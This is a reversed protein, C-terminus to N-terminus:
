SPVRISIVGINYSLTYYVSYDLPSTTKLETNLLTITIQNFTSKTSKLSSLLNFLVLIETTHSNHTNACNSSLFDFLYQRYECLNRVMSLRWTYNEISFYISIGMIYGLIGMINHQKCSSDVCKPRLTYVFKPRSTDACNPGLFWLCFIPLLQM